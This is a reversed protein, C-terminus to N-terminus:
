QSRFVYKSLHMSPRTESFGKATFTNIGLSIHEWFIAESLGGSRSFLRWPNQDLQFAVKNLDYKPM